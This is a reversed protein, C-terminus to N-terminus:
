LHDPEHERPLRVSFVSGEDVVSDVEIAGGHAEAIRKSIALGLGSGRQKRRVGKRELQVFEEFVRDLDGPHIGLGNDVVDITVWDREVRTRVTVRGGPPTFKFANDILNRMIQALRDADASVAVRIAPREHVLEIEAETALPSMEEIVEDLITAVDVTAADISLHGSRFGILDVLDLVLRRLRQVSEKTITLFHLQEETLGDDLDGTLIELYSQVITLPTKLEHAWVSVMREQRTRSSELERRLRDCERTLGNEDMTALSLALRDLLLVLSPGGGDRWGPPGLVHVPVVRDGVRLETEGGANTLARSLPVVMLDAPSCSALDAAAQNADIIRDASADVVVAPAPIRDLSVAEAADTPPDQRRPVM